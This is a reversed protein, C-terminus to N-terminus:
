YELTREFNHLTDQNKEEIIMSYIEDYTFREMTLITRRIASQWSAGSHSPNSVSIWKSFESWCKPAIDYNKHAIDYFFSNVYANLNPAQRLKTWEERREIEEECTPATVWWRIESM